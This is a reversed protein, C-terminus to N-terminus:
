GLTVAGVTLARDAGPPLVRPPSVMVTMPVPKRSPTLATFKPLTAAEKVTRESVASVATAGAPEAPGTWTVTVLRPPM